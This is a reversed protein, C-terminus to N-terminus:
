KFIKVFYILRSSAFILHIINSMIINESLGKFCKKKASQSTTFLNVFLVINFVVSFFLIFVSFFVVLLRKSFLGIFIFIETFFNASPPTGINISFLTFFIFYLGPIISFIGRNYSFLRSNTIIFLVGSLMFMSSSVLGHRILMILSGENGVRSNIILSRIAVSIHGVSSYAIVLKMDQFICALIRIIVGGFLRLWGFLLIIDSTLPTLIVVRFIGYGGLKLLVSALVISGTVSAEVHAKPLWVHFVFMPFKVIFPMILTIEIILNITPLLDTKFLILSTNLLSQYRELIFLVNIIFPIALVLSYLALMKGAFLREPQYGFGLIILLIMFTRLEFRIYFILLRECCFFILNLFTIRIFAFKYRKSWRSNLNETRMLLVGVLTFITLIMMSFSWLDISVYNTWRFQGLTPLIILTLFSVGFLTSMFSGILM